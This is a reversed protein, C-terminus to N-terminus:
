ETDGMRLTELRWHSSDLLTSLLKMGTEQLNNKRLDLERLCSPSSRLASELFACGGDTVRCCIMRLSDLRCHPSQLGVCLLKVGSDQLDNQSLDLERLSSPNSVLASALSACCSESLWCCRLRLAELRCHPSELGECLQKVGSDQLDNNSLDLERLSSQDSKLASAVSTCCNETLGCRDLCLTELRCQPNKLAASLLNVGLDKLKNKSLDLERMHCPNSKIASAMYVCCSESLGCCSLRLSELCCNPSELGVSLLKVGSDKLYNNSSLDLEKLHSYPSKLASALFECCSESLSCNKLRLIELRCNPSELGVSLRKVGSDQLYDNESLDLEHLHSPNSMLASSLVECHSESLGCYSLRANKCNRVAPLLRRRGDGSANYKKLDLVDLVKESMQLVYALASCHTKTLKKESRNESQLYEQVEQHVSHDNMEMLCLFINISRDASIDYANMKKLNNIAKQISEPSSTTWELLGGLLHHNSELLLGHLFRVFLDLHGNSSSLSKDVVRSLISDLGAEGSNADWDEGLFTTLVEINRNLYSHVMYVAALFEQISLHVFCYITKQLLVCERKFIETCLGSFVLAEKVDLGCEELDEQYFMINGKELHEFALRGLRLLVERHTQMLEQQITEHGKDYKQTKKKTQVMLFHSYMETLTKPLKQDTTLMHELVTATIWCFVPIHCMIYLSRSAKIHSIIRSSLSEDSFRRRFYEEKQTDTFGRVETVRDVYSPPIQSAAAPRSTIWLLASPLLNGKILNILIINVSSMQTVDSVVENNQFDLLLRSEDLGDFILLVNCLALREATVMRLTPDFDQLLRLLSYQKEKILNLERFSLLVVLNVDQNELGAAWDLTFKQVSFTKGIGAIGNTLVVRILRKQGPLIKFIDHCKIPADHLTVMKSMAELQWVEHQINVGECQGETIYLETYIRNLPTQLRSETTGEVTFEYKGRLHIKHNDLVEQLGRTTPKTVTQSSTQLEPSRRSRKVCQHCPFDGTSKQEMCSYHRSCSSSVSDKLVELCSACCPVQEEMVPSSRKREYTNVPGPTNSFILPADKSQDSKLSPCISAPSESRSDQDKGHTTKRLVANLPGPDNSFALPNERSQDSKLSQCISGPSRARGEEDMVIMNM